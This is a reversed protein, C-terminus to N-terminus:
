GFFRDLGSVLVSLCFEASRFYVFTAFLGAAGSAFLLRRYGRKRSPSAIEVGRLLVLIGALMVVANFLIALPVLHAAGSLGLIDWTRLEPVAGALVAPLLIACKSADVAFGFFTLLSRIAAFKKGTAVADRLRAACEDVTLFDVAAEARSSLVVDVCGPDEPSMAARVRGKARQAACPDEGAVRARIPVFDDIGAEAAASAVTAEDASDVLITRVGWRRLSRMPELVSERLARRLHVAGLVETGDTVLLPVGGSRVIDDVVHRVARPIEEEADELSRFVEGPTGKGFRGGEAENRVCDDEGSEALRRSCALIAKGFPTEDDLSACRAARLLVEVDIKPAPIFEEVRLASKFVSSLGELVVTDVKASKELADRSVPVIGRAALERRWCLRVFPLIGLTTPILCAVLALLRVATVGGAGHPAGTLAFAAFTLMLAISVFSVLFLLVSRVIDDPHDDPEPLRSSWPRPTDVRGASLCVAVLLCLMGAPYGAFSAGEGTDCGFLACGWASALLVAAVCIAPFVPIASATRVFADRFSAHRLGSPFEEEFFTEEHVM